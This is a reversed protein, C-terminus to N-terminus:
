GRQFLGRGEQVSNQVDGRETLGARKPFGSKTSLGDKQSNCGERTGMQHM